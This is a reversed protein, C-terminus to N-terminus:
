HLWGLAELSLEDVIISGIAVVFMNLIIARSKCQTWFKISGQEVFYLSAESIDIEVCLDSGDFDIEILILWKWGFLLILFYLQSVFCDCAFVGYVRFLGWGHNYDSFNLTLM